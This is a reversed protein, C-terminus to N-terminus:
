ERERQFSEQKPDPKRNMVWLSYSMSILFGILLAVAIAVIFNDLVIWLPIALLFSSVLPKRALQKM